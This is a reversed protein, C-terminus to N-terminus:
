CINDRVPDDVALLVAYARDSTGPLVCPPILVTGVSIRNWSMSSTPWHSAEGLRSSNNPGIPMVTRVNM